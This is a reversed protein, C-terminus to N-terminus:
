SRRVSAPLAGSGLDLGAGASGRGPAQHRAEELDIASPACGEPDSEHGDSASLASYKKNSSYWMLSLDGRLYGLLLVTGLTCPVLYLLAPQGQDGFWSFVLAVYTLMLGAAYSLVTAPFYSRILSATLHLDIDLRRTYAVLLGPLIVDGFGLMSYGGLQALYFRPVRLLMPLYEHSSGGEAVEVMVSEGNFFLPSIFVWFIDYVFALPLLICTVKINSLRLTRLVLLMLCVGSFDQLLWSWSANRWVAWVMTLAVSVPVAAVVLTPCPGLGPVQTVRAAQGPMVQRLLAALSIANAQICAFCFLGLLVYFFVKNLFFFLLLLMASSVVVFMVAMQPTIDVTESVVNPHGQLLSAETRGQASMKRHATHDLGSWVSGGIVTGVALAFLVISSPDWRPISVAQLSASAGAAALAGLKDGNAQSISILTTTINGVLEKDKHDYGMFVCGPQNDYLLMAAAKALQLNVAKTTFNCTGRQVLVVAGAVDGRLEACAEVPDAKVLKGSISENLLLQHGFPALAGFFLQPKALDNQNISIQVPYGYCQDEQSSVTQAGLYLLILIAWCPKM